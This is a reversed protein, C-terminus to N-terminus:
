AARLALEHVMETLSGLDRFRKATIYSVPIDVVFRDRVHSMLLATNMSNLVGWELLPTNETLEDIETDQLFNAAVYGRLEAYIEDASLAM